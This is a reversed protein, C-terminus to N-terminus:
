CSTLMRSIQSDDATALEAAEAVLYARTWPQGPPRQVLGLRIRGSVTATREAMEAYFRALARVIHYGTASGPVEAKYEEFRELALTRDTGAPAQFTDTVKPGLREVKGHAYIVAAELEGSAHTVIHAASDGVSGDHAQQAADRMAPLVRSVAEDMGSPEPPTLAGLAAWTIGSAGCSAVFGSPLARFPIEHGDDYEVTGDPHTLQARSDMTLLALTPGVRACIMSM